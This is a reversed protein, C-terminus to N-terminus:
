SNPLPNLELIVLVTDSIMDILIHRIPVGKQCNLFCATLEGEIASALALANKCTTCKVYIPFNKSESNDKGLEFVGAM